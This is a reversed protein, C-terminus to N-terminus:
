LNSARSRDGGRKACEGGRQTQVVHSSSALKCVFGFNLIWIKKHKVRINKLKWMFLFFIESSAFDNTCGTLIGWPFWRSFSLTTSRGKKISTAFEKAANGIFKQTCHNIVVKESWNRKINIKERESERTEDTLSFMKNTQIWKICAKM